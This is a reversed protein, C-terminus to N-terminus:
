YCFNFPLTAIPSWVDDTNVSVATGGAQNYPIPPTHPISSVSYTTPAGTHFPTATLNTCSQSCPLVQDPGANIDPCGPFQAYSNTIFMVFLAVSVLLKNTYFRVM